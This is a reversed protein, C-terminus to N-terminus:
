LVENLETEEYGQLICDFKENFGNSYCVLNDGDLLVHEVVESSDAAVVALLDMSQNALLLRNFAVFSEQVPDELLAIGKLNLRINVGSKNTCRISTIYTTREASFIATQSDNLDTFLKRVPKIFNM